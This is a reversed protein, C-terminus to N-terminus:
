APKQLEHNQQEFDNPSQYDLYSHIRHCNYQMTMHNLIDQQASFRTAYNCWHVRAQKLSGFFSEAEANGRCCREKSISDEFGHAKILDRYAKIAYQVGQHSHV